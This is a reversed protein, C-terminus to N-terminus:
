LGFSAKCLTPANLKWGQDHKQILTENVLYNITTKPELNGGRFKGGVQRM